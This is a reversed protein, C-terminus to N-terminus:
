NEWGTLQKAIKVKSKERIETTKRFREPVVDCQKNEKTKM